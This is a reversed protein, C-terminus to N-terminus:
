ALIYEEAQGRLVDECNAAAAWASVQSSHQFELECYLRLKLAANWRKFEETSAAAYIFNSIGRVHATYARAVPSDPNAGWPETHFWYTLVTRVGRTIPAIAHAVSSAFLVADGPKTGEATWLSENNDSWVSIDGGDFDSDLALSLTMARFPAHRMPMTGYFNEPWNRGDLDVPSRPDIIDCALRSRRECARALCRPPLRRCAVPDGRPFMRRLQTFNASLPGNRYQCLGSRRLRTVCAAYVTGCTLDASAEANDCHRPFGDNPAIYRKIMAFEHYAPVFAADLAFRSVVSRVAVVAPHDFPVPTYKVRNGAALGLSMERDIISLLAARSEKDLVDRLVAMPSERGLTIQRNSVELMRTAWRTPPLPGGIRESLERVLRQSIGEEEAHVLRACAVLSFVAVLMLNASVVNRSSIPLSCFQTCTDKERGHERLSHSVCSHMCQKGMM